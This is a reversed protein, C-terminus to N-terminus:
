ALNGNNSDSRFWFQHTDICMMGSVYRKVGNKLRVTNIRYTCKIAMPVYHLRGTLTVIDLKVSKIGIERVNILPSALDFFSIGPLLCSYIHLGFLFM